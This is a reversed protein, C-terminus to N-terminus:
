CGIHIPFTAVVVSEHIRITSESHFQDALRPATLQYHVLHIYKRPLDLSGEVDAYFVCRKDMPFIPWQHFSTTVVVVFSGSVGVVFLLM